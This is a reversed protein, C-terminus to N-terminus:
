PADAVLTCKFDFGSPLSERNCFFKWNVIGARLTTPKAKSLALAVQTMALQWVSKSKLHSAPEHLAAEFHNHIRGCPISLTAQFCWPEYIRVNELSIKCPLLIECKSLIVTHERLMEVDTTACDGTWILASSYRPADLPFVSSKM